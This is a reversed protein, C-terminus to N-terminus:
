RRREHRNEAYVDAQLVGGGVVEALAGLLVRLQQREEGVAPVAQAHLDPQPAALLLAAAGIGLVVTGHAQSASPQALGLPNCTDCLAVDLPVPAGCRVCPQSATSRSTSMGADDCIPSSPGSHTSTKKAECPSSEVM